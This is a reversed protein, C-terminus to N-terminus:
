REYERNQVGTGTNTHGVTEGEAAVTGGEDPASTARARSFSDVLEVVAPDMPSREELIRKRLELDDGIVIEATTFFGIAEAVDAAARGKSTGLARLDRVSTAGCATAVRLAEAVESASPVRKGSAAGVGLTRTFDITVSGIRVAGRNRLMVPPGELGNLANSLSIRNADTRRQVARREYRDGLTYGKARRTEHGERAFLMDGDKARSIVVGRKRCFGVFSEVTLSRALAYDIDERLAEKWSTGGKEMISRERTTLRSRGTGAQRITAAYDIDRGSNAHDNPRGETGQLDLSPPKEAAERAEVELARRVAQKRDWQEPPLTSYGWSRALKNIDARISKFTKPTMETSIRAGTKINTANTVVHVHLLGRMGEATRERNDDHVVIASEHNPFNREVWERAYACLADPDPDDGPALSIIFHEYTRARKGEPADNHGFSERTRDMVAWWPVGKDDSEDINVFDTARARGGRTLYRGIWETSGHGNIVKFIPM